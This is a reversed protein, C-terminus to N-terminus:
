ERVAYILSCSEVIFFFSIKVQTDKHLYWMTEDANRPENLVMLIDGSKVQIVNHKKDFSPFDVYNNHQLLDGAKLDTSNKIFKM